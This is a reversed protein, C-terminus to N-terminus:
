SYHFYDSDGTIDGVEEEVDYACSDIETECLIQLQVLLLLWCFKHMIKICRTFYYKNIYICIVHVTGLIDTVAEKRVSGTTTGSFPSSHPPQGFLSTLLQRKQQM